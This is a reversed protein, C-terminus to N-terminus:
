LKIFRGQSSKIFVFYLPLTLIVNFLVLLGMIGQIGIHKSLLYYLGGNLIIMFFGGFVGLLAGASQKIVEVENQFEFKPVYLNIIGDIISILVSFIIALGMMLLQSLIGLQISIGFLLISVLAIPLILLVNFIVKSLMITKPEIPLSKIIWFNKGELSLSIAPTYTMAISFGIFVMLLVEIDLGAGIAERLINEIESRFFLSAVSLIMLLVPGLGANVAYLTISFFKKFEKKILSMMVPRSQYVLAKGKKAKFSKMGKQNTYNVIPSIGLVFIVFLGVHSSLLYLMSIISRNSIADIMWKLPPYSSSLGSFLDIQGTLPNTEVDNLNFSVMFLGLFVVFTLIINIIKHRRFHRTLLSMLLAILSMIVIPVLPMVLFSLLYFIFSVVHFGNHYFYSFVIPLTFILSSVYLMWLLVSIKSLLVTRPHIPLPSLIDYDKYYFLSGNARFFVIIISLGIAYVAYFSLLIHPQGMEKLIKGLDFFMYGFAGLFVVIAYLIALGVLIGKIKEKKFDFGFLRKLSFQEKLFVKLLKFYM